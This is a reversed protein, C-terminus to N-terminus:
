PQSPPALVPAAAGRSMTEWIDLVTLGPNARYTEGNASPVDHSEVYAIFEDVHDEVPLPPKDAVFEFLTNFALKLERAFASIYHPVTGDYIAVVILKAWRGQEDELIVFRTSHVTGVRDLAMNLAAVPLGKVTAKLEELREIVVPMVLLLPQQALSDPAGVSQGSQPPSM